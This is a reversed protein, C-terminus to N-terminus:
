ESLRSDSARSSGASIQRRPILHPSNKPLKVLHLSRSPLPSVVAGGLSVLREELNTARAVEWGVSGWRKRSRRSLADETASHLDQLGVLLLTGTWRTTWSNSSWKWYKLICFSLFFLKHTLLHRSITWSYFSSKEKNYESLHTLTYFNFSISICNIKGLVVIVSRVVWGWRPGAKRPPGLLKVIHFWNSGGNKLLHRRQNKRVHKVM